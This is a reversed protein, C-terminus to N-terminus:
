FRRWIALVLGRQAPAERGAVPERWGAQVSWDGLRRVVSVEGNLWAAEGGDLTQGGYVQTLMLWGDVAEVGLTLDGRAEDPLGSRFRRAAQAEIFARGGLWEYTGSHGALVRAEWDGEGEGPAAYGANRGEGPTAYGVYLAVANHDDRWAQWRVGIETPGLGEYDAFADLGRQWESRFQLTLTDTLGYEAFLSAVDDERPAPLDRLTGDLDFGQSARLM